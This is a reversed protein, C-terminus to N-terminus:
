LRLNSKAELNKWNNNLKELENIKNKEKYNLFRYFAAIAIMAANDGCLEMPPLLLQYNLKKVKRKLDERLKKNAAVGGAVAINKPSYKKIVKLTKKILVETAAEQFAKCIAMKYWDFTTKDLNRKQLDQYFYLVSTKLGSFSFHFNSSNLMPRPFSIDELEKKLKEDTLEKIRKSFETAKKSVIPGGPYGLELLKAVKDFAEGVADDQTEGIITHKLHNETLILQTNGGSVLLTLIPFKLNKNEFFNAYIHGELHNIGILPKKNFYSLTKAANTGILLAPILGPGQTVAFLDIEKLSHGSKKLAQDLVPIINKLHQRAALDPVVGGWKRHIEVQSSIVNSLIKIEETKKDGKLIAVSTEDCSTEISLVLM